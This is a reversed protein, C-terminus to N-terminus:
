DEVRLEGIIAYKEGNVPLPVRDVYWYVQVGVKYVGPSLDSPIELTHRDFTLAGPQWETTPRDGPPGNHQPYAHGNADLLFVGVSYDAPLPKLASWWLDVHVAQGLGISGPVLTDRLALLDGYIRTEKDPIPREFLVARITRDDYLNRYQAGTSTERTLVRIFGAGDKDLFPMVQSPQLWNVIWVRRSAKLSDEVQPVVSQGPQRNDVWPLTRIIHPEASDGLALMLEYRFANDDWGTELIILDGPTYESAVAQAAVNYDLRPQIVTPVALFVAVLSLALVNAARQNVLSLGYGCVLMLLPALFALTRPSLTGVRLNAVFLLGLLGIGSLVITMRALWCVSREPREVIRWVGLAYCGATLALQSGFLIGGISLLGTLTSPYSDIGISIFGLQRPLFLLWPIYLIAAALWGSALEAKRRSSGRWAVLGIFVQVALILLGLYLTYLMFVISLVYLALTSRRPQRLYRLFFLTMLSAALMLWGYDRIEQSYYVAVPLVSMLLAAYIGARRGFWDAGIRYVAAVTLLGGMISLFRLAIRSDGALTWWVSLTLTYLPPHRDKELIKDVIVNLHHDSAAWTSWGEDTWVPWHGANVIRTTATLLLIALIPTFRRL